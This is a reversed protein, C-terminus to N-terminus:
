RLNSSYHTTNSILTLFTPVLFGQTHNLAPCCEGYQTERSLPFPNPISAFMLLALAFHFRDHLM